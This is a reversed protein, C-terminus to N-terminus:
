IDFIDFVSGNYNIEKNRIKTAPVGAYISNPLVDQLVVAGAGIYAGEGITIGPLVTANTGITAFDRITVRGAISASGMIHCGNGINCEHDITSNTNLIVNNGIECFKHVVSSPMAQLGYGVNCTPEIFARDHRVSLPELGLTILTLAIKNRAYGHENGICVVFHSYNYFNKKLQHPCNIFELETKYPLHELSSDFINSIEGLDQERIMESIVRSKSGGGWLLISKKRLNLDAEQM